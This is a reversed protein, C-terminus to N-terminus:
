KKIISIRGTNIPVNFSVVGNKVTGALSGGTVSITADSWGEPLQVNLTLEADFIKDDLNDKLEIVLQNDTQSVKSITTKARQYSYIAADDLTTVWLKGEDMKSKVYALHNDAIESSISGGWSSADNDIGHWMECVWQGNQIATDIWGNMTEATTNWHSGIARASLSLLGEEDIPLNNNAGGARRLVIHNEKVKAKILDSSGGGPTYLSVIKQNPFHELLTNRAGNIEVDLQAESLTNGEFGAQNHSKTHSAVCWRGTNVLAKAEDWSLMGSKGMWDTVIGLTGVLGLEEFKEDLYQNTYTYNDDTTLTYIAEKNDKVTAISISDDVKPSYLKFTMTKGNDYTVTLTSYENQMASQALIENYKTMTAANGTLTFTANKLASTPYILPAVVTEPLIISDGDKYHKIGGNGILSIGDAKAKGALYDLMSNAAEEGLENHAKQNYHVYDSRWIDEVTSPMDGNKYSNNPYKTDFWSKISADSYWNETATSVMCLDNQSAALYAQAARPGTVALSKSMNASSSNGRIPLIGGSTLRTEETGFETIFGQHMKTFATIYEEANYKSNENEGQMWFYVCDGITYGNDVYSEVSNVATDYLTKAKSYCFTAGSHCKDLDEQTADPSWLGYCGSYPEFGTGGWAAKVILVTHGTRDHWTKGLSGAWGKEGSDTLQTNGMTNFYVTDKEPKVSLTADAYQGMANSQGAIMLIDITRKPSIYPVTKSLYTKTGGTITFILSDGEAFGSADVSLSVEATTGNFVINETAIVESNEGNM